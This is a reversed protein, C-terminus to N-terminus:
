MIDDFPESIIQIHRYIFHFLQTRKKQPLFQLRLHQPNSTTVTLLKIVGIVYHRYLYYRCFRFRAFNHVFHRSITPLQLEAGLRLGICLGAWWARGGM